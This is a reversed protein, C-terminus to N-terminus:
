DVLTPHLGDWFTLCLQFSDPYGAQEVLARFSDIYEDLTCKGQGYQDRDRLSLAATKAPDLPFFEARFDAEFSAWDAFSNIGGPRRFVRLAYTSARGTKMYSLVWTIKLADSAFADGALQIYTICSQLFREGTARSGDYADPLAPRHIKALALSPVDRRPTPPIAEPLPVASIGPPPPALREVLAQLSRSITDTTQRLGAFETTHLTLSDQTAQVQAELALLRNWAEDQPSSVDSPDGPLVPQTM